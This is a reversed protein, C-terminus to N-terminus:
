LAKLWSQTSNLIIVLHVKISYRQLICLCGRIKFKNWCRVLKGELDKLITKIIFEMKNNKENRLGVSKFPTRNNLVGIKNRTTLFFSEGWDNNKTVALRAVGPQHVPFRDCTGLTPRWDVPACLQVSKLDSFNSLYAVSPLTHRELSHSIFYFLFDSGGWM